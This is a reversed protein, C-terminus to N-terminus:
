SLYNQSQYININFYNHTKLKYCTLVKVPEKSVEVVTM